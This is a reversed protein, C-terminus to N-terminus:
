RWIDAGVASTKVKASGVAMSDSFHQYSHSHDFTLDSPFSHLKLRLNQM